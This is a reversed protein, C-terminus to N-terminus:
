TGSTDGKAKAAAQAALDDSQNVGFQAFLTTLQADTVDVGQALSTQVLQAAGISLALVLQANPPLLPAATTAVAEVETLGAAIQAASPTTGTM